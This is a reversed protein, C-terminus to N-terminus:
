AIQHQQQYKNPYYSMRITIYILLIKIDTYYVVLTFHMYIDAASQVEDYHRLLINLHKTKHDLSQNHFLVYLTIHQLSSLYLYCEEFAQHITNLAWMKVNNKRFIIFPYDLLGINSWDLLNINSDTYFNNNHLIKCCFSVDIHINESFKKDFSLLCTTFLKKLLTKCKHM